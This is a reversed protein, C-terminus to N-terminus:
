FFRLCHNHCPNTALLHTVTHLITIIAATNSGTPRYAFQDLFPLTAPPKLIAPYMYHRVVMKELTCIGPCTYVVNKTSSNVSAVHGPVFGRPHAHVNEPSQGPVNEDELIYVSINRAM